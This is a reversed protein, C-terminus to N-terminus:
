TILLVYIGRCERWLGVLAKRGDRYKGLGQLELEAQAKGPKETVIKPTSM